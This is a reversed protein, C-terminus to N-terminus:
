QDLWRVLEGVSCANMLGDTAYQVSQMDEFALRRFESRHGSIEPEVYVVGPTCVISIIKDFKSFDYNKGIPNCEFFRKKDQWKRVKKELRLCAERFLKTEGELHRSTYPLSMCDVLLLNKEYVGIADVDTVSKGDPGSLSKQERVQRLDKSIGGWPSDDILHQVKDEFHKSRVNASKSDSIEWELSRGLAHFAMAFDLLVVAGAVRVVNGATPPFLKGNTSALYSILAQADGFPNSAPFVIRAERLVELYDKEAISALTVGDTKIYGYQVVSVTFEPARVLMRAGLRLFMWLSIAERSWGSGPEDESFRAAEGISLFNFRFNALVDDGNSFWGFQTVPCKMWYQYDRSVCLIGVETLDGLAEEDDQVIVTGVQSLFPLEGEGGRSDYLRIAKSQSDTTQSVPLANASFVFAVGKRSSRLASSVFKFIRACACFQLLDDFVEEDLEYTLPDNHIEGSPSSGGYAGSALEAYMLISFENSRLFGAQWFFRPLRRLYYLWAVSSYRKAVSRLQQHINNQMRLLFQGSKLGDAFILSQPSKVVCSAAEKELIECRADLEKTVRVQFQQSGSIGLGGDFNFYDGPEFKFVM